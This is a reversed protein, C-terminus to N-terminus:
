GRAVDFSRLTCSEEVLHAWEMQTSLVALASTPFKTGMAAIADPDGGADSLAFALQELGPNHGVVVLSEVHAATDRLLLLLDDVSADYVDDAIQLHPQHAFAASALQWTERTRQAPSVLVLDPQGVRQQLLRGAVPADRRGREGLPRRRDPVGDPWDSKAHRLLAITRATM